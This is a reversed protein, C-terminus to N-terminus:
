LCDSSARKYKSKGSFKRGDKSYFVIVAEVELFNDKVRHMFYNQYM